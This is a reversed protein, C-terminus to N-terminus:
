SSYGLELEDEDESTEDGGSEQGGDSSEDAGEGESFDEESDPESFDEEDSVVKSKKKFFKDMDIKEVEEGKVLRVAADLNRGKTYFCEPCFDEQDGYFSEAWCSQSCIDCNINNPLCENGNADFYSYHKLM